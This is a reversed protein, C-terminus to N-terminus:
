MTQKAQTELRHYFLMEFILCDLKSQCKKLIKFSETIDNPEKAHEERLRKGIASGKHEDIRQHLHRCTFCVYDADCLDCKFHYVACQQNVLPPKRETEKIQDKIKRITYVPRIDANIKRSLDGLQKRVTDASRQDKFSLVIRTPVEQEGPTQQDTVNEPVVKAEVFRRITPQVLPEPDHLRTFTEKLRECEEHFLQWSSSLRFARNLMTKLLTHKYKVDVHSQQHLLLGTDTPKKYVKTDLRTGNRIIEMGLFPLKKNEELEMTLSISPHSENLTSLFETAASVDPMKSLTGDVYRKDFTPMKNQHELQEEIGCMFANAMLPGLPSGMAVGEVQEYLNGQFQFLQNKTAIELLETLEPKTINLNHKKNFWDDQFAKETLLEITESVPVNTFLATVDYSVVM